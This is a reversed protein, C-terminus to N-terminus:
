GTRTRSSGARRPWSCDWSLEGRLGSHGASRHAVLLWPLLARRRGPQADPKCRDRARCSRRPRLRAPEQLVCHSVARVRRRRGAHPWRAPRDDQGAAHVHPARPRQRARGRAAVPRRQGPAVGHRRSVGEPRRLGGLGDAALSLQVAPGATRRAAPPRQLHRAVRQLRPRHPACVARGALVAAFVRVPRGADAALGRKRARCVRAPRGQVPGHVGLLGADRLLVVRLRHPRRAVAGPVRGAPAAEGRVGRGAPAAGRPRREDVPRQAGARLRNAGPPNSPPSRGHGDPM